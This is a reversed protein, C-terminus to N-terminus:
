NASQKLKIAPSKVPVAFLAPELVPGMQPNQLAVTTTGGQDDKVTWQRLELSSGSAAFVLAINSSNRNTSTRAKVIVAGDREEIGIVARNHALDVKDNLLLGLPTDGLSYRDITNLRANKVFVSGNTAVILVPSPPRYEFRVRGPKEIFVEGQDVGGEPGVQVFGSRLTRIANLYASVQDLRARQADNYSQYLRQPAQQGAGTLLVTAALAAALLAIRRM